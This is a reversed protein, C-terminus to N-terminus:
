LSSRAFAAAYDCSKLSEEYSYLSAFQRWFLCRSVGFLKETVLPMFRRAQHRIKGFSKAVARSIVLLLGERELLRRFIQYWSHEISLWYRTFWARTRFNPWWKM